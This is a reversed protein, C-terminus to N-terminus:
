KNLFHNYVLSFDHFEKYISKPIGIQLDKTKYKGCKIRILESNKGMIKWIPFLDKDVRDGIMVVKDEMTENIELLKDINTSLYVSEPNKPDSTISKFIAYYFFLDDKLKLLEFKRIISDAQSAKESEINIDDYKNLLIKKILDLNKLYVSSLKYLETVLIRNVFFHHINLLKTKWVQLEYDGESVLYFRANEKSLKSLLDSVGDYCTIKAQSWFREEIAKIEPDDKKEQILKLAKNLEVCDKTFELASRLIKTPSCERSRILSLWIEFKALENLLDESSISKNKIGLLLAILEQSLWHHRFSKEFFLEFVKHHERIAFYIKWPFNKWKRDSIFIKSVLNRWPDVANYLTHDLDFLIISNDYM